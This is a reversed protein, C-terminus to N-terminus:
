LLTGLHTRFRKVAISGFLGAKAFPDNEVFAKAAALDDAEVLYLSGAVQDEETLLPGVVLIRDRAGEIYALHESRAATRVASSDPKDTCMAVFKPM